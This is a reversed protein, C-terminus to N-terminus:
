ELLIHPLVAMLNDESVTAHCVDEPVSDNSPYAIAKGAQAMVTKDNYHDGVFVTQDATAGARDSILALADAKGEFDYATARVGSIMGYSSFVLENIFVFDFYDRFDPFVDELFVNIGGSIVATVLGADRLVRLADRCNVTLRLSKATDRLKGRTLDGEKFKQIASECWLRYSEVRAERSPSKDARRHYERRLQNQISKGFGLTRWVLEWSFVYKDGRILSGDLDFAVIKFQHKNRGIHSVWAPGPQHLIGDQLVHRPDTNLGSSSTSTGTARMAQGVGLVVAASTMKASSALPEPKSVSDPPNVAESNDSSPDSDLLLRSIADVGKQCTDRVERLRSFIEDSLMEQCYELLPSAPSYSAISLVGVLQRSRQNDPLKALKETMDPHDIPLSLLYSHPKAGPFPLYNEPREPSGHDQDHKYRFAQTGSRFCMGGIGLGFPAWFAWETNVHKGDERCVEVVVLRREKHNWTLFATTFGADKHTVHLFDAVAKHVAEFRTKALASQPTAPGDLRAKRHALLGSRVVRAEESLRVIEAPLKPDPLQWDLSYYSGLTPYQIRMEVAPAPSLTEIKEVEINRRWKANAESWDTGYEPGTRVLGNSRVQDVPIESPVLNKLQFYQFKPPSVQSAPLRVGIVMEKVPFWTLQAFYESPPGNIPEDGVDTQQDKSYLNHFEWVTLADANLAQMTWAFSLSSDAKVSTPQLPSTFKFKGRLTGLNKLVEDFTKAPPDPTTMWRIGDDFAAQSLHPAIVLGVGTNFGWTLTEIPNRTCRLGEIECQIVFSGDPDGIKLMSFRDASVGYRAAAQEFAMRREVLLKKGAKPVPSSKKSNQRRLHALIVSDPNVGHRPVLAPKHDAPVTALLIGAEEVARGVSRGAVLAEYFQRAFTIANDDKITNDTGIVCDIYEAIEDAQSKSYCSNMVVLRIKGKMVRFLSDMIAPSIETPRDDDGLLVVREMPSGHASFHVIDPNYRSLDSVIDAIRAAPALKIDWSSPLRRLIARQEVDIKLPRDQFPNASVLYIVPM